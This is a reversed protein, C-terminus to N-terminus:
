PTEAQSEAVTRDFKYLIKSSSGALFFNTGNLPYIRYIEGTFGTFTMTVEESGITTDVELLVGNGGVLIKRSDEFFSAVTRLTTFPSPNFSIM